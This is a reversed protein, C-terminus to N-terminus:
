GKKAFINVFGPPVKDPGIETGSYCFQRYDCKGRNDCSHENHYWSDSDKMDEVTRYMAFLEREFRELDISSRSIPKRAFYYDSRESIDGFLRCGFMEPTERVAFGKKLTEFDAPEGDVYIPSAEGEPLHVEFTQGFYRGSEAFKVTDAQSLKKPTIQPKHWVDYLIDSVLPDEAKIKYPELLGDAQLRQVAYPYLMTQTDLRLHSWYESDSEVGDGTSKHEMIKVKGDHLVLKDITGDIVVNPVARRTRPDILPIRFPIERAIVQIPVSNWHLKYAFLSYLITVRETERAERSMGPYLMGYRLDLVRVVAADPDDVYGTGRCYPCTPEAQALSSCFPCPQEAKLSMAELGAHWNSGIRLPDPEETKRIGFVYANRYKIPCAKLSSFASASLVTLRPEM